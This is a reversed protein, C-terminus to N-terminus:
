KVVQYRVIKDIVHLIPSNDIYMIDILILYNLKNNDGLILKFCSSPM